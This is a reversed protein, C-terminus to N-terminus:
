LARAGQVLLLALGFIVMGVVVGAVMWSAKETATLEEANRDYFRNNAEYEETTPPQRAIQASLALKEARVDRGYGTCDGAKDAPRNM